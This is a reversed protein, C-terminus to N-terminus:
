VGKRYDPLSALWKSAEDTGQKRLEEYSEKIQLYDGNPFVVIFWNGDREISRVLDLNLYITEGRRETVKVM